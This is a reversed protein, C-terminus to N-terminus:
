RNLLFLSSAVLTELIWSWTNIIKLGYKIPSYTKRLNIMEALTYKLRVFKQNKYSHAQTTYKLSISYFFYWKGGWNKQTKVVTRWDVPPVKFLGRRHRCRPYPFVFSRIPVFITWCTRKLAKHKRLRGRCFLLTFDECNVDDAFRFRSPM